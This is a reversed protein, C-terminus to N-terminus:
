NRSNQTRTKYDRGTRRFYDQVALAIDHALKADPQFIFEQGSGVMIRTKGPNAKIVEVTWRSVIQDQSLGSVRPKM